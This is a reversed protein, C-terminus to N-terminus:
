PEVEPELGAEVRDMYAHSDASDWEDAWEAEAEADLEPEPEALAAEAQDTLTFPVPEDPDAEAEIRDRSDVCHGPDGARHGGSFFAAIVDGVSPVSV